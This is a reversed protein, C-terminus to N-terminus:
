GIGAAGRADSGDRGGQQLGKEVLASDDDVWQRCKRRKMIPPVTLGLEKVTKLNLWWSSHRQSSCQCIPPKAGKLIKGTYIGAQRFTEAVWTDYSILGGATAFERWMYNALVSAPCPLLGCPRHGLQVARQAAPRIVEM